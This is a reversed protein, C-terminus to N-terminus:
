REVRARTLARALEPQMFPKPLFVASNGKAWESAECDSSMLICSPTKKERALMVLDSGLGPCLNYDFIALDFPSCKLLAEGEAFSSVSSIEWHEGLIRGLLLTVIEALGPSDDVVLCKKTKLM